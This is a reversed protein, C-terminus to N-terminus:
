RQSMKALSAIIVKLIHTETSWLAHDWTNEKGKLSPFLLLMRAHEATHQQKHGRPSHGVLSKQGHSKGPFFYHLLNGNGGGPSRGSGPILSMDETDRASAPLNKKGSLWTSADQLQRELFFFFFFPQRLPVLSLHSQQHRATARVLM